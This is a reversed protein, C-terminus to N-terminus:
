SCMVTADTNMDPLWGCRMLAHRSNGGVPKGTIPTEMMVTTDTSGSMSDAQVLPVISASASRRRLKIVVEAHAPVIGLAFGFLATLVLKRM